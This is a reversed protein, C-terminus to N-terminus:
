IKIHVPFCLLVSSFYLATQSNELPEVNLGGLDTSNIYERSVFIINQLLKNMKQKCIDTLNQEYAFEIFKCM